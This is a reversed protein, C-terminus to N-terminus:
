HGSVFAGYTQGHPNSRLEFRTEARTAPSNVRGVGRDNTYVAITTRTAPTHQARDLALRNQLQPDDALAAGAAIVAIAATLFSRKSSTTM